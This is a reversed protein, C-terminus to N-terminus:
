EEGYYDSIIPFSNINGDYYNCIDNFLNKNLDNKLGKCFKKMDKYVIDFNYIDDKIVLLIYYYRRFVVDSDVNDGVIDCLGAIKLIDDSSIKPYSSVIETSVIKLRETISCRETNQFTMM